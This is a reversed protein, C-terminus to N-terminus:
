RVELTVAGTVDDELLWRSAVRRARVPAGGSFVVRSGEAAPLEIQARMGPPLTLRLTFV